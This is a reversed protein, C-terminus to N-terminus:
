AVPSTTRLALAGTPPVTTERFVSLTATLTGDFTITSCPLLWTFKVMLEEETEDIVVTVMVADSLPALAFLVRVRIGARCFKVRNGVLAGPPALSVALMVKARTAGESQGTFRLLLLVATAETGLRTVTGVPLWVKCTGTVVTGCHVLASTVIVAVDPSEVFLADSVTVGGGTALKEKLLVTFPPFLRMAVTDTEYGAQEAPNGTVRMLLLGETALTGALIVTEPPSMEPVNVIVVAFTVVEVTTVMEAVDSLTVLVLVSVTVGYYPSSARASDHHALEKV